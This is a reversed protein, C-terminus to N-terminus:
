GTFTPTAVVAAARATTSTSASTSTGCIGSEVQVDQTFQQPGVNAIIRLTLVTRNAVYRDTGTSTEGFGLSTPTFPTGGGGGPYPVPIPATYNASVITAVVNSQNTLTITVTSFGDSGCVPQGVSIVLPLVAVTTTTSSPVTTQAGSTACWVASLLVAAALATVRGVSRNWRM